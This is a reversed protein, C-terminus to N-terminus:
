NCYGSCHERLCVPCERGPTDEEPEIESRGGDDQEQFEPDDIEVGHMSMIEAHSFQDWYSM